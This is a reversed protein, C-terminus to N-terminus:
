WQMSELLLDKKQLMGFLGPDQIYRLSFTEGLRSRAELSHLFFQSVCM